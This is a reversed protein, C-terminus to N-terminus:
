KVKKINVQDENFATELNKMVMKKLQDTPISKSVWEGVVTVGTKKGKPTYYNFAKSGAMDGDLYELITGLPPVLTLKIRQRITSGEPTTTEYSLVPHEGEMTTSPNKQFSHNHFQESQALKWVKDVPADFESGEDEIHVMSISM